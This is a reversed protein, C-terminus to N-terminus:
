PFSHRRKHDRDAICAIHATDGHLVTTASGGERFCIAVWCGIESRRGGSPASVRTSRRWGADRVARPRQHRLRDLMVNSGLRYLFAGSSPIEQETAVATVKIKLKQVIDEAEQPGVRAAFYRRLEVQRQVLADLM